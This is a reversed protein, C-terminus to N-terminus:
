RRCASASLNSSRRRLRSSALGWWSREARTVRGEERQVRRGLLRSFRGTCANIGGKRRIFQGLAESDSKYAAAYRMVRSWKSRTRKDAKAPDATCRIIAAFPDEREFMELRQLCLARRARNIERREATWWSVLGYVAELYRYIADRRRRHQCKAWANRVRQLDQRMAERSYPIAEPQSRDPRPATSPFTQM